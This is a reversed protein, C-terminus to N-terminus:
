MCYIIYLSFLIVFKVYIYVIYIKKNNLLINYDNLFKNCYIDYFGKFKYKNYNQHIHFHKICRYKKNKLKEFSYSSIDNQKLLYLDYVLFLIIIFLIYKRM